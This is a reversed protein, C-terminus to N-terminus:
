KRLHLRTGHSACDQLLGDVWAKTVLYTSGGIESASGVVDKKLDLKRRSIDLDTEGAEWLILENRQKWIVWAIRTEEPLRYGVICFDNERGPRYKKALPKLVQRYSGFDPDARISFPEHLTPSTAAVSIAPILAWLILGLGHAPLQSVAGQRILSPTLNDIQAEM